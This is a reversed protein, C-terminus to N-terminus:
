YIKEYIIFFIYKVLFREICNYEMCFIFHIGPCILPGCTRTQEIEGNCSGAEEDITNCRRIRNQQGKQGCSQSCPTWESWDTWGDVYRVLGETEPKQEPFAGMVAKGFCRSSFIGSIREPDFFENWVAFNHINGEFSLGGLVFTDGRSVGPNVAEESLFLDGEIYFDRSNGASTACINVIDGDVFNLRDVDESNNRRTLYSSM